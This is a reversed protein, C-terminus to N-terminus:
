CHKERVRSAVPYLRPHTAYEAGLRAAHPFQTVSSLLVRSTQYRHIKNCKMRATLTTRLWRPAAQCHDWAIKTFTGITLCISKTMSLRMTRRTCNQSGHRPSLLCHKQLRADSRLTKALAYRVTNIHSGEGALSRSYLRPDM